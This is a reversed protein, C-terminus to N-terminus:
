NPMVPNMSGMPGAIQHVNMRMVSMGVTMWHMQEAISGMAGRVQAMDDNITLMDSGVTEMSAHIKPMVETVVHMHEAIPSMYRISRDFHQVRQAVMDMDHDVRSLNRYMSEMNEVIGNLDQYLVRVYYVNVCALIVLLLSIVLIVADTVKFHRHREDLHLQTERGLRAMVQIIPSRPDVSM